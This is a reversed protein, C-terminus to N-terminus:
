STRSQEAAVSEPMSTTEGLQDGRWNSRVAVRQTRGAETGGEGRIKVNGSTATLGLGATDSSAIVSRDAGRDVPLHVAKGGTTVAVAALSAGEFSVVTSSRAAM